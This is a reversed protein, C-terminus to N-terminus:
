GLTVESFVDTAIPPNFEEPSGVAVVPTGTTGSGALKGADLVTRSPRM